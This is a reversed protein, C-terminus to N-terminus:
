VHKEEESQFTLVKKVGQGTARRERGKRRIGGEEEEDKEEEEKGRRKRKGM